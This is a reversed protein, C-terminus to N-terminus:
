INMQPEQIESKPINKIYPSNQWELAASWVGYQRCVGRGVKQNTM